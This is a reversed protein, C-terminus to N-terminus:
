LTMSPHCQNHAWGEYQLASIAAHHMDDGSRMTMAGGCGPCPIEIKYKDVVYQRKEKLYDLHGYRTQLEAVESELRDREERIDEVEQRLTTEESALDSIKEKYGSARAALNEIEELTEAHEDIGDAQADVFTEIAELESLAPPTEARKLEERLGTLNRYEERVEVPPPGAHDEPTIAEIRAILNCIRDWLQQRKADRAARDVMTSKSALDTDEPAETVIDIDEESTTGCKSCRLQTIEELSKRTAWEHGCSCRVTSM